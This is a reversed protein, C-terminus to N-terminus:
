NYLKVEEFRPILKKLVDIQRQTYIEDIRIDYADDLRLIKVYAKLSEAVFTLEGCTLEISIKKNM